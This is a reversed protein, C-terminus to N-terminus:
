NLKRKRKDFAITKHHKMARGAGEVKYFLLFAILEYYSAMICCVDFVQLLYRM